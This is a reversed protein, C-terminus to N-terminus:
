QILRCCGNVSLCITEDLLGNASRKAAASSDDDGMTEVRHHAAASDHDHVAALHIYICNTQSHFETTSSNGLNSHKIHRIPHSPEYKM